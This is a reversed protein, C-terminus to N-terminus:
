FNSYQAHRAHIYQSGFSPSRGQRRGQQVPALPWRGPDAAAADLRANGAHHVTDIPAHNTSEWAVPDLMAFPRQATEHWCWAADHAIALLRNRVESPEVPCKMHEKSPM